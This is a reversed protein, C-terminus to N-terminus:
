HQDSLSAQTDCSSSAQPYFFILQFCSFVAGFQGRCNKTETYDYTGKVSYHTNLSLIQFIAQSFNFQIWQM